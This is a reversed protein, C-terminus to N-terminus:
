GKAKSPLKEFLGDDIGNAHAVYCAIMPVFDADGGAGHALAFTNKVADTMGGAFRLAALDIHRAHLVTTIAISRSTRTTSRQRFM